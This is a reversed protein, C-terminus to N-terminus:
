KTKILELGMLFFGTGITIGGVIGGLVPTSIGSILPIIFFGTLVLAPGFRKLKRSILISISNLIWGFSFLTLATLAGINYRGIHDSSGLQNATELHINAIDPLVFIQHWENALMFASGFFALIFSIFRFVRARKIETQHLFIGITGFLLFAVTAAAFIMRYLFPTSSQLEGFPAGFDVFPLIVTNPIAFCIGAMILAYGSYKTLTTM